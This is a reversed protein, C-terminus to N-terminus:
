KRSLTLQCCLQYRNRLQPPVPHLPSPLIRLRLNSHRILQDFLSGLRLNASHQYWLQGVGHSKLVLRSMQNPPSGIRLDSARWGPTSSKSDPHCRSRNKSCTALQHRHLHKFLPALPLLSSTSWFWEMRRHIQLSGECSNALRLIKYGFTSSVLPTQSAVIRKWDWDLHFQLWTRTLCRKRQCTHVAM